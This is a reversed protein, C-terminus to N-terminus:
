VVLASLKRGWQLQFPTLTLTKTVRWREKGEYAGVILYVQQSRLSFISKRIFSRIISLSLLANLFNNCISIVHKINKEGWIGCLPLSHCLRREVDRVVGHVAKANSACKNKKTSFM